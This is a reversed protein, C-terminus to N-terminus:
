NIKGEEDVKNEKKEAEGKDKDEDDSEVEQDEQTPVVNALMKQFLSSEIKLKNDKKEIEQIVQKRQASDAKVEITFDNIFDLGKVTLPYVEFKFNYKGPIHVM